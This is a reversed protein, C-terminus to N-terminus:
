MRIRINDKGDRINLVSLSRISTVTKSDIKVVSRCDYLGIVTSFLSLVRNM